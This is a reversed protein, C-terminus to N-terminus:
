AYSSKQAVFILGGPNASDNDILFDLGYALWYVVDLPFLVIRLILFYLKETYKSARWGIGSPATRQHIYHSFLSIITSFIGGNKRLLVVKFGHEDLVKELGQPTWRYFDQHDHKGYMFPIAMAIYGDDKLVRGVESLFQNTNPIHEMVNFAAVLDFELDSFPLDQADCVVDTHETPAIDTSIFQESRCSTKLLNKMMANGGGVELVKPCPSQKSFFNKMTDRILFHGPSMYFCYLRYIKTLFYILNKM